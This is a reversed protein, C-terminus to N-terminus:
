LKPQLTYPKLKITFRVSKSPVGRCGGVEKPHVPDALHTAAMYDSKIMEWDREDTCPILMASYLMGM